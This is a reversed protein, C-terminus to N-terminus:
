IWTSRAFGFLVMAAVSSILFLNQNLPSIYDIVYILLPIIGILLFSLYTTAGILFPSKTEEIMELEEKMM